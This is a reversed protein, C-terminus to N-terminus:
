TAQELLLFHHLNEYDKKKYNLFYVLFRLEYPINSYEAAAVTIRSKLAKVFMEYATEIALSEFLAKCTRYYEFQSVVPLSGFLTRLIREYENKRLIKFMITKSLAEHFEAPEKYLELRGEKTLLCIGAPSNGLKQSISKCNDEPVVVTVKSFAQYYDAIQSDLRSFNDLATKIEYVVAAENILIFDAKSKGVPLETLATTNCTNVLLENLLLNKYYYENQYNSKLYQYIECICDQNTKVSYDTVFKQIVATYATTEGEKIVRKLTNRSFFNNLLGDM